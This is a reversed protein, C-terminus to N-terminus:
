EGCRHGCRGQDRALAAGDVPPKWDVDIVPVSQEKVSQAMSNLGVNIVTLPQGFFENLQPM